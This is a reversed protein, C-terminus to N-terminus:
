PLTKGACAPILGKSYLGFVAPPPKGRAHPSSGGHIIRRYGLRSNEGRMRPHAPPPPATPPESYTKGACAPILGRVLCRRFVLGRKGRAHPSSGSTPRENGGPQVNEGRMRPHARHSCRTRRPKVTKGACAPILGFWRGRLRLGLLKGRAHPSSGWFHFVRPIRDRNEGRMRPHARGSM